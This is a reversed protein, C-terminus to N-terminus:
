SSLLLPKLAKIESYAIKLMEGFNSKHEEYIRSFHSILNEGNALRITHYRGHYINKLAEPVLKILEGDQDIIEATMESLEWPLHPKEFEREDYDPFVQKWKEFFLFHTIEHLVVGKRMEVNYAYSVFFVWWQLSRPQVSQNISMIVWIKRSPWEIQMIESLRKLVKENVLGWTEETEKRSKEIENIKEAYWKDVFEEITMGDRTKKVLQRGIDKDAEKDIVFSLKPLTM